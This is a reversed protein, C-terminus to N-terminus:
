PLILVKGILEEPYKISQEKINEIEEKYKPPFLNILDQNSSKDLLMAAITSGMDDFSVNPTKSNVLEFIKNYSESDEHEVDEMIGEIIGELESIHMMDHGIWLNEIYGGSEGQMGAMIITIRDEPASLIEKNLYKLIEEITENDAIIQGRLFNKENESLERGALYPQSFEDNTAVIAFDSATRYKEPPIVINIKEKINEHHKRIDQESKKFRLTDPDDSQPYLIEDIPASKKYFLILNNLYNLEKIFNNKKFFIKLKNLDETM